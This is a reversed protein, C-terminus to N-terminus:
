FVGGPKPPVKATSVRPPDLKSTAGRSQPLYSHIQPSLSPLPAQSELIPFIFDPHLGHLKVPPTTDLRSAKKEHYLPILRQASHASVTMMPTDM